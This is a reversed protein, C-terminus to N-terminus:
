LTVSVNILFDNCYEKLDTEVFALLLASGNGRFDGIM